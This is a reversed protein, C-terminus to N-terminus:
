SCDSTYRATTLLLASAEILRVARGTGWHCGCVLHMKRQLWADLCSLRTTSQLDMHLSCHVRVCVCVLVICGGGRPSTGFPFQLSMIVTWELSLGCATHQSGVGCGRMCAHAPGISVLLCSVWSLQFFMFTSAFLM